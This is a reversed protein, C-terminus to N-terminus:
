GAEVIRYRTGSEDRDRTITCGAKRFGTLAARVSHAQWGTAAMLEAVLIGEPGRLLAEMACKKSTPIAPVAPLPPLSRQAAARARKTSRAAQKLSASRRAAKTVIDTAMPQKTAKTSKTKM